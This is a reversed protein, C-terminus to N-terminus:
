HSSGDARLKRTSNAQDLKRALDARETRRNAELAVLIGVPLDMNARRDASKGIGGGCSILSQLCRCFGTKNNAALSRVTACM